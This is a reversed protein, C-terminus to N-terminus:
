LVKRSNFFKSKQLDIRKFMEEKQSKFCNVENDIILGLYKIKKTIEVNNIMEIKKGNVLKEECIERLELDLGFNLIMMKCKKKNLDLGYFASINGIREVMEHARFKDETLLLADDMYFLSNYSDDEIKIGLNIKNVKDIIKYTVLIFLLGSLNCGQRIGSSIELTTIKEKNLFMNTKDKTYIKAILNIINPHIKFEELVKIMKYRDISDYAKKFDISLIFM